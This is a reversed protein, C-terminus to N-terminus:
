DKLNKKKFRSKRRHKTTSIVGQTIAVTFMIGAISAVILAFMDSTNNERYNKITFFIATISLTSIFLISIINLLSELRSFRIPKKSKYGKSEPQGRYPVEKWNRWGRPEM